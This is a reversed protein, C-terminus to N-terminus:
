IFRAGSSRPFGCVCFMVRALYSILVSPHSVQWLDSLQLYREVHFDFSFRNAFLPYIM